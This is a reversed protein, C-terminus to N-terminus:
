IDRRIFVPENAIQCHLNLKVLIEKLYSLKNVKLGIRAVKLGSWASMIERTQLLGIQSVMDNFISKWKNLNSM